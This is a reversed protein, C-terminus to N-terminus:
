FNKADIHSRVIFQNIAKFYFFLCHDNCYSAFHYRKNQSRFNCRRHVYIVAACACPTAHVACRSLRQGVGAPSAASGEGACTSPISRICLTREKEQKYYLSTLKFFRRHCYMKISCDLRKGNCNTIYFISTALLYNHVYM